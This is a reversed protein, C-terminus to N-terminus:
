CEARPSKSRLCESGRAKQQSRPQSNVSQNASSDAQETAQKLRHKQDALQEHLDGGEGQLRYMEIQTCGGIATLALLALTRLFLLPWRMGCQKWVM